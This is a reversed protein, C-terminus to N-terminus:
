SLENATFPLARWGSSDDDVSGAVVDVRDDLDVAGGFPADAGDALFNAGGGLASLSDCVVVDCSVPFEADTTLVEADKVRGRRTLSSCDSFLGGVRFPLSGADAGPGGVKLLGPLLGILEDALV